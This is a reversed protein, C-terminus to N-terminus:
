RAGGAREILGPLDTNDHNGVFLSAGLGTAYVAVDVGTHGSTSWTVDPFEGKGNNRTIALGGTEHDATVIILPDDRGNAWEAILRVTRDFEITEHINRELEHDHAAQDICGGEVLLFFGDPDDDLLDIAAMAMENLHPFTAYADADGTFDDYEYPMNGMGFLGCLPTDRNRRADHLEARNKVVTYGAIRAAGARLGAGGGGLLVDPKTRRLYDRAIASRQKRSPTHAAFAAPTAHTLETTTVLGVSKGSDQARELITSLARRDGPLAVSIVGNNVKHGTAMATASAASDTLPNDASRISILGQAPFAEFSLTGSEGNLYLGAARVHEPGMGDGICLIVNRPPEAGADPTVPLGILLALPAAIAVSSHRISRALKARIRALMSM